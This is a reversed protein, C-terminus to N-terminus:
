AFGLALCTWYVLFGVIIAAAVNGCRRVAVFAAGVAARESV